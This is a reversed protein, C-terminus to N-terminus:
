RTFARVKVRVEGVTITKGPARTAAPAAKKGAAGL